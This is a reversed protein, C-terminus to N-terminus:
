LYSGLVALAKKVIMSSSNCLLMFCMVYAVPLSCVQQHAKLLWNEKITPDCFNSVESLMTHMLTSGLARTDTLRIEGRLSHIYKGHHNEVPVGGGTNYVFAPLRDLFECRRKM